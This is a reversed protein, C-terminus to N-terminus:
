QQHRMELHVDLGWSLQSLSKVQKLVDRLVNMNLFGDSTKSTVTTKSWYTKTENLRLKNRSLQAKIKVNITM